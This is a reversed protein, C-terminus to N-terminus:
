EQSHRVDVHCVSGDPVAQKKPSNTRNLAKSPLVVPNAAHCHRLSAAVGLLQLWAEKQLVQMFYM